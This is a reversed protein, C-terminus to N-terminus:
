RDTMQQCPWANKEKSLNTKLSHELCGIERNLKDSVYKM